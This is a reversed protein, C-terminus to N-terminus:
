LLCVRTYVRCCLCVKRLMDEDEPLDGEADLWRTVVCGKRPQADCGSAPEICILTCRGLVQDGTLEDWWPGAHVAIIESGDTSLENARDEGGRHVNM